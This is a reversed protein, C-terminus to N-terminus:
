AAAGGKKLPDIGKYKEYVAAKTLLMADGVEAWSLGRLRAEVVAGDTQGDVILRAKRLVYLAHAPPRERLEALLEAVRRLDDAELREAHEM